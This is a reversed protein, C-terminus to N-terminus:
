SFPFNWNQNSNFTLTGNRVELPSEFNNTFLKGTGLGQHSNVRLSFTWQAIANLGINSELASTVWWGISRMDALAIWEECSRFGGLLSPKLILYQPMIKDLLEIRNKKKIIGILEEDLAIPIPSRSCLDEMTNYQGKAIPQEISHLSLDALAELKIMAETPSFAGNADVRLIMQNEDYYKRIEGLLSIEENFDLAGIKLKICNFGQAIKEDIQDKMFSTDGMWVLGNTTISREGKTFASPFLEFTNESKISMLAMEYGMQISPFSQLEETTIEENENIRRCLNKLQDEYDECDDVSLGRFLGCEGVGKKQGETLFLFWTEKETLVGRSTRRPRKFNLVYRKYYAKM